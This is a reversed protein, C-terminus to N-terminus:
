TEVMRWQFDLYVALTPKRSLPKLFTGRGWDTPSEPHNSYIFRPYRILSNSISSSSRVFRRLVKTKFIRGLVPNLQSLLLSLALPIAHLVALGLLLAHARLHRGHYLYMNRLTHAWPDIGKGIIVSETM